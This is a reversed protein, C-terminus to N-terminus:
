KTIRYLRDGSQNKLSEIGVGRKKAATSIFFAPYATSDNLGSPPSRM